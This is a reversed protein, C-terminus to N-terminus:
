VGASISIEDALRRIKDSLGELDIDTQGAVLVSLSVAAAAYGQADFIPAAVCKAGEDCEGLDFAFGQNRVKGIETRWQEPDTISHVTRGPLGNDAVMQPLRANSDFAVLCKGLATVSLDRRQGIVSSITLQQVSEAKDVYVVEFGDRIGLHVTYGVERVFEEMAHRARRRLIAWNGAMAALAIVKPGLQWSPQKPVAQILGFEQLESLYRYATPRSLGTTRVLDSVSVGSPNGSEGVALLLRLAKGLSTEKEM